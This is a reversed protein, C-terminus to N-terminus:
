NFNTLLREKAKLKPLLASPYNKLIAGTMDAYFCVKDAKSLNEFGKLETKFQTELDNYHYKFYNQLARSTLALQFAKATSVYLTCWDIFTNLVIEDYQFETIELLQHTKM